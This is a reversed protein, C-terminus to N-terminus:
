ELREGVAEEILVAAVVEFPDHEVVARVIRIRPAAELTQSAIPSHLQLPDLLIEADDAAHSRAELAGGMTVDGREVGVIEVGSQRM